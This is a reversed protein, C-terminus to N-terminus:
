LNKLYRRARLYKNLRPIDLITLDRFRTVDLNDELDNLKVKRALDNEKVRDLYKTYKEHKRKTIADLAEIIEEPFWFTRLLDLTLKTDEITDHLIGVIMENQSKGANMVRTCHLMYPEGAKDKQEVHYEAALQIARTLLNISM